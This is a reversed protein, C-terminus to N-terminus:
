VHRRLGALYESIEPFPVPKAISVDWGLQRALESAVGERSLQDSPNSKSDVWEFWIRIESRTGHM